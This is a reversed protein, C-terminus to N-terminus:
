IKKPIRRMKNKENEDIQLGNKTIPMKLLM